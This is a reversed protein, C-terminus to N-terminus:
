RVARPRSVVAKVRCANGDSPFVIWLSGDRYHRELRARLPSPASQTCNETVVTDGSSAAYVDASRRVVETRAIVGADAVSQLCPVVVCAILLMKRM